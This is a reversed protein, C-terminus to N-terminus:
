CTFKGPLKKLMNFFMQELGAVEVFLGHRNEDHLIVKLHM